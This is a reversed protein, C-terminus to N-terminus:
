PTKSGRIRDPRIKVAPMQTATTKEYDRRWDISGHLKLLHLGQNSLEFRGKTSWDSIGTNCPVRQSSALLEVSNDYNLTAVVLHKQKDLANLIPSLYATKGADEIWVLDKLAAIMLETTENFIRGEGSRSHSAKIQRNIQEEIRDSGSMSPSKLKNSWKETLEKIYREVANGVSDSSSSSISRNKVAAEITKKITSAIANDIKSSAFSPPSQSFASLIQKAVADYILRQLNGSRQSPYIKDLEELFSHWSGIFPAAELTGREALLQVANFLDEVNVAPQLPNPTKRVQKSSYDALLLPFRTLM